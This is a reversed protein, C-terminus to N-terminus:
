KKHRIRMKEIFFYDTNEKVCIFINYGRFWLFDIYERTVSGM